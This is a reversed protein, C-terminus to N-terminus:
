GKREKAERESPPEPSLMAHFVARYAESQLHDPLEEAAEKAVKHAQKIKDESM